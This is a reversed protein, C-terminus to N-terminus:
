QTNLQELGDYYVQDYRPLSYDPKENLQRLKTELKENLQKKFAEFKRKDSPTM